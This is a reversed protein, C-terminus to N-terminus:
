ISADHIATEIDNLRDVVIKAFATKGVWNLEGNIERAAGLLDDLKDVLDGLKDAIAVNQSVLQELLEELRSTDM